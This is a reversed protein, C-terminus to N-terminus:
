FSEKVSNVPILIFGTKKLIYLIVAYYIINILCFLTSFLFSALIQPADIGMLAFFWMNITDLIIAFSFHFLDCIIVMYFNLRFFLKLLAINIIFLIITHIGVPIEWLPFLVERLLFTALGFLFSFLFFQRRKAQHGILRLSIKSLFFSEIIYYSFKVIPKLIM